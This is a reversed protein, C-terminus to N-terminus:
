YRNLNSSLRDDARFEGSPVFVKPVFELGARQLTATLVGNREANLNKNHKPTFKYLVKVEEGGSFKLTVDTMYGGNYIGTGEQRRVDETIQVCHGKIGNEKQIEKIVANFYDDDMTRAISVPNARLREVAGEAFFQNVFYKMADIVM